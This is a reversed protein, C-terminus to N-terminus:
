FNVKSHVSNTAEDVQTDAVEHEQTELVDLTNPVITDEVPSEIIGLDDAEIQNTLTRDTETSAKLNEDNKQVCKKLYKRGMLHFDGESTPSTVKAESQIPTSSLQPSFQKLYSKKYYKRGATAQLQERLISQPTYKVSKDTEASDKASTELVISM